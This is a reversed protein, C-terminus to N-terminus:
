DGLIRMETINRTLKDGQWVRIQTTGAILFYLHESDYRYNGLIKNWNRLDITSPSPNEEPHTHWEGLYNCTGASTMWTAVIAQQHGKENRLFRNRSRKDSDFPETVDDIVINGTGLIKRGLLVGGAEPTDKQLQLYRRIIVLAKQGIKLLPDNGNQFYLEKQM